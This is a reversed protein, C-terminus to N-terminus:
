DYRCSGESSRLSDQLVHRTMRIVMSTMTMMKATWMPWKKTKTKTVRMIRTFKDTPLEHTTFLFVVYPNYKILKAPAQIIQSLFPTVESPCRLVFVELTQLAYERLEDDEKGTAAAVGAVVEPIAGSIRQPSHRAISAMLLVTTRQNELRASPALGPRITTELLSDFFSEPAASLFQALTLIARERVAPRPHILLPTLM